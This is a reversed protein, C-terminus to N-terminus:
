KWYCRFKWSLRKTRMNKSTVNEFKLNRIKLLIDSFKRHPKDGALMEFFLEDSM